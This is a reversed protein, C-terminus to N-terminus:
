GYNAVFEGDEDTIIIRAMGPNAEIETVTYNWDDDENSSLEAAIAEARDISYIAEPATIIM